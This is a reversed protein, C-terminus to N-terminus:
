EKNDNPNIVPPVLPVIQTSSLEISKQSALKDSLMAMLAKARERKEEISLSQKVESREILDNTLQLALKRDLHNKNINSFVAKFAEERLKPIYHARTSDVAQYLQEGHKRKFQHVTDPHINNDAAFQKITRTDTPDAMFAVLSDFYPPRWEKDPTM